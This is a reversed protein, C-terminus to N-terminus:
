SVPSYLRKQPRISYPKREGCLVGKSNRMPRAIININKHNVKPNITGTAEGSGRPNKIGTGM